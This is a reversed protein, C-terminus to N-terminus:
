GRRAHFNRQYVKGTEHNQFKIFYKTENEAQVNRRFRRRVRCVLHNEKKTFYLWLGFGQLVSGAIRRQINFSRCHKMLGTYSNVSACLERAGEESKRTIRITDECAHVTRNSIYIRRGKVVRGCSLMGRHAPQVSIKMPHLELDLGELVVAAAEAARRAEKADRAVIDYDDVFHEVRINPLRSLVDDVPALYIGAVVQSPYRGIPLGCGKKAHFLSKSEPIQRWASAPSKRVCGELPDSTLIAKMIALKEGKDEYPYFEDAYKEVIRYAKERNIHVFFGTVDRHMRVCPRTYGRSVFAIDELLREAMGQASHGVRNGHSIDGNSAHVNEAVTVFLKSAYHDVICDLEHPAFAERFVPYTLVFATMPRPKYGGGNVEEALAYLEPLHYHIRAASFNHHKNRYAGAEAEMWEDCNRVFESAGVARYRNNTNNNNRNGNSTNVYWANTASNRGACM